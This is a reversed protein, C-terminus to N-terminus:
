QVPSAFQEPSLMTAKVAAGQKVKDIGEVIVRDSATLGSEVIWMGGAVKEGLKVARREAKNDASVVVVYNSDLLEKVARQPVLLANPKVEGMAMIRGFMGPLLLRQSNDFSAKLTITGMSDSIGKDIQEVTGTAGYVSGNSLTLKLNNKLSEPLGGNSMQAFKLYENESMSFQVWIPDLSSVTALTTSGATVYQGISVDNVDIRGDVPSLILTDQSNEQAEQLKARYMAVAAENQEVQSAQADLTQQSVGNIAALQEYRGLDKRSNNLSAQAQNLSAQASRVSSQYQKDDIRFLPQGKSVTDGGKVMKEVVNGSIKSIIKVENKSVVKGVFEYQLRTDKQVVQMAKVETERAMPAGGQKNFLAGGKTVGLGILAVLVIIIAWRQKSWQSFFNSM